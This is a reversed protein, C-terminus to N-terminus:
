RRAGWFGFMGLVSDRAKLVDRLDGALTLRRALQEVEEARVPGAEQILCEYGAQLAYSTHLSAVDQTGEAVVRLRRHFEVEFLFLQELPSM